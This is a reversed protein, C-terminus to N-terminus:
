FYWNLDMRLLNADMRVTHHFTGTYVTGGYIEQLDATSSLSNFQTYLYSLGLSLQHTFSYELGGGLAWGALTSSTTHHAYANYGPPAPADTYYTDTFNQQYTLNTAALGGTIFPLFKKYAYGVRPRLTYLWHTNVTEKYTYTSTYGPYIDSATKSTQLPFANFDTELGLMLGNNLVKNYGIQVGGIISNPHLSMDGTAAVHQIFEDGTMYPNSGPSITVNTKATARAYGGNIGAYFGTWAFAPGGISLLLLAMTLSPIPKTM